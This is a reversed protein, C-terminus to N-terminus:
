GQSITQIEIQNILVVVIERQKGFICPLSGDTLARLLIFCLGLISCHYVCTTPSEILIHPEGLLLLPHYQVSSSSHPLTLSPFPPFVTCLHSTSCSSSLSPISTNICHMVQWATQHPILALPQHAFNQAVPTPSRQDHLYIDSHCRNSMNPMAHTSSANVCM